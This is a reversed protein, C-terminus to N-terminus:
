PEARHAAREAAAAKVSGGTLGSNPVQTIARVVRGHILEPEAISRFTTEASCSAVRDACLANISYKEIKRSQAAPWVAARSPDM